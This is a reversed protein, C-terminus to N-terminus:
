NEKNDLIKLCFKALAVNKIFSYKPVKLVTNDFFTLNDTNLVSAVPEDKFNLSSLNNILLQKDTNISKKGIIKINEPLVKVKKANQMRISLLEYYFDYLNNKSKLINEDITKGALANVAESTNLGHKTKIFELLDNFGFSVYTAYFLEGAFIIGINTTNENIDILMYNSDINNELAKNFAYISSAITILNLGINNTFTIVEDLYDANIFNVFISIELTGGRMGQPEKTIYGDVKTFIIDSNLLEISINAKDALVENKCNAIIKEVFDDIEKQTIKNESNIRKIRVTTTYSIINRQTIGIILNKSKTPYLATLNKIKLKIEEITEPVSLSNEFNYNDRSIVENGINQISDGKKTYLGIKLEEKEIELVFVDEGANIVQKQPEAKASKRSPIKIKPLNIMTIVIKDSFM